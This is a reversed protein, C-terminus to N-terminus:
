TKYLYFYKEIYIIIATNNKVFLFFLFYINYIFIYYICFFFFFIYKKCFYYKVKKINFLAEASEELILYRADEKLHIDFAKKKLIHPIQSYETFWGIPNITSPYLVTDDDKGPIANFASLIFVKNM